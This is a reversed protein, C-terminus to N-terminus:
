TAPSFTSPRTASTSELRLAARGMEGAPEGEDEVQIPDLKPRFPKYEEVDTLSLKSLFTVRIPHLQGAPVTATVTEWTGGLKTVLEKLADPNGVEQLALVDPDINVITAASRPMKTRAMRFVGAPQRCGRHPATCGTNRCRM